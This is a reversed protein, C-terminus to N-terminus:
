DHDPTEVTLDQWPERRSRILDLLGAPLMVAVGIGWVWLWMNLTGGAFQHLVDSFLLIVPLTGAWAYFRQSARRNYAVVRPDPHHAALAYVFISAAFWILVLVPLLAAVMSGINFAQASLWCQRATFTHSGM